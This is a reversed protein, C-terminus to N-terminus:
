TAASRAGLRHARGPRPGPVPREGARVAGFGTFRALRAQEDHTAAREDQELEQLLRVAAINDAARAKWGQALGRDGALRFNTAPVRVTEPVVVPEDEDDHFCPVSGGIPLGLGGALATSDFLGLTLQTASHRTM